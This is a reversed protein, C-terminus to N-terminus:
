KQFPPLFLFPAVREITSLDAFSSAPSLFFVSVHIPFFFFSFLRWRAGINTGPMPSALRFPPATCFGLRNGREVSPFPLSPPRIMNLREITSSNLKLPSPAPGPQYQIVVQRRVSPPFPTKRGGSLRIHYWPNLLPFFLTATTLMHLVDFRPSPSLFPPPFPKAKM